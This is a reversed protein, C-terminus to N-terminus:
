FDFTLFTLIDAASVCWALMRQFALRTFSDAASVCWALM